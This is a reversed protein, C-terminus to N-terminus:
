PRQPGITDEPSHHRSIVLPNRCALTMWMPELMSASNKMPRARSGASPQSRTPTM